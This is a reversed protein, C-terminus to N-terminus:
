CTLYLARESGDGQGDKYEQLELVTRKSDGPIGTLHNLVLDVDPDSNVPFVAFHDGLM